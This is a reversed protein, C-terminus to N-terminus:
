VDESVVCDNLSWLLESNKEDVKGKLRRREGTNVKPALGAKFGASVICINRNWLLVLLLFRQVFTSVM